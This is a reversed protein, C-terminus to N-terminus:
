RALPNASFIHFVEERRCVLSQVADRDAGAFDLQGERVNSDQPPSTLGPTRGAWSHTVKETTCRREGGHGLLVGRRRQVDHLQAAHLRHNKGERSQHDRRLSRVLAELRCRVVRPPAKGAPGGWKTERVTVTKCASCVMVVADGPKVNAAEKATTVPKTRTEPAPGAIVFSGTAVLLLAFTRPRALGTLIPTKM